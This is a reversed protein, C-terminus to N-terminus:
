GRWYPGLGQRPDIKSAPLNAIEARALKRSCVKIPFPLAANRETLCAITIGIHRWVMEPMTPVGPIQEKLILRTAEKRDKGLDAYHSYWGCRSIRADPDYKGTGAWMLCKKIIFDPHNALFERNWDAVLVYADEGAFVGYGDYSPEELFSGDPMLLYGQDGICMAEKNDKDAYMWSYCGVILGGKGDGHAQLGEKKRM